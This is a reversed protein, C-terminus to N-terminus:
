DREWEVVEGTEANVEFEFVRGDSLAEGEYVFRARDEDFDISIEKVQAKGNKSALSLAQFAMEPSLLASSYAEKVETTAGTEANLSIQVLTNETQVFIKWEPAGDDTEVAAYVASGGPVLAIAAEIADAEPLSASKARGAGFYETEKLLPSLAATNLLVTINADRAVFEFETFRGERDTEVLRADTGAIERARSEADSQGSALAAGALLAILLFVTFFQKM